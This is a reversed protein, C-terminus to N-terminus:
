AIRSEAYKGRINSHFYKGCSENTHFEDYIYSPVDYYNWVQNNSKFEVELTSTEEEYGISLIMSSSVYNREM